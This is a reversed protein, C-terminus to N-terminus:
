PVLKGYVQLDCFRLYKEPVYFEIRSAVYNSKRDCMITAWNGRADSDGSLAGCIECEYENKCVKIEMDTNGCGQFAFSPLSPNKM